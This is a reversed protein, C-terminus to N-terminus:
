ARMTGSPYAPRSHGNHLCGSSSRAQRVENFGIKRRQDLVPRLIRAGDAQLIAIEGIGLQLVGSAVAQRPNSGIHAFQLGIHLLFRLRAPLPVISFRNEVPNGVLVGVIPERM